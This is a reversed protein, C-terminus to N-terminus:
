RAALAPAEGLAAARLPAIADADPAADLPVTRYGELRVLVRGGEDAVEADYGGVGDPRVLAVYAGADPAPADRLVRVARVELPLGMRGTAGLEHVGATQFCLEVLRPAMALPSEAPAHAAPLSARMRGVVRGGALSVRELVRYAPGHFYVRYVDDADAAPAGEDDPLEVAAAPPPERTLRVTGLFHTTEEV